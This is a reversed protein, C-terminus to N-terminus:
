KKEEAVKPAGAAYEAWWKATEGSKALNEREERQKKTIEYGLREAADTLYKVRASLAASLDKELDLDSPPPAEPRQAQGYPQAQTSVSLCCLAIIAFFKRM